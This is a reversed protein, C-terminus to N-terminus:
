HPNNPRDLLAQDQYSSRESVPLAGPAPPAIRPPTRTAGKKYRETDNPVGM